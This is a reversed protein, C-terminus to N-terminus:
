PRRRAYEAYVQLVAKDSAYGRHFVERMLERAATQGIAKVVIAYAEIEEKCPSYINEYVDFLADLLVIESSRDAM